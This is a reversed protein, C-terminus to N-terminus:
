RAAPDVGGAALPLAATALLLDDPGLLFLPTM